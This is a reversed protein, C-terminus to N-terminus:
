VFNYSYKNLFSFFIQLNKFRPDDTNFTLRFIFIYDIFGEACNVREFATGSKGAEIFYLIKGM